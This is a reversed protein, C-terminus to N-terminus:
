QLLTSTYRVTDDWSHSYLSRSVAQPRSSKTRVIFVATGIRRQQGVAKLPRFRSKVPMNVPRARLDQRKCRTSPLLHGSPLVSHSCVNYMSFRYLMAITAATYIYDGCGAAQVAEAFLSNSDIGM